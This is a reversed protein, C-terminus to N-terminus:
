EDRLSSASNSLTFKEDRLLAEVFETCTNIGLKGELLLQKKTHSWGKLQKERSAAEYKSTYKESYVFKLDFFKKTFLSKKQKHITFRKIVNNTIGVYFMKQNCLLVYVIWADSTNM